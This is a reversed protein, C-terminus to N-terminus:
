RFFEAILEPQTIGLTSAIKQTNWNLTNLAHSFLWRETRLLQPNEAITRELCDVLRSLQKAHESEAAQKKANANEVIRQLQQAREISM